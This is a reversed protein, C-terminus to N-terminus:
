HCFVYGIIRLQSLGVLNAAQTSRLAAFTTDFPAAGAVLRLWGAGKSVREVEGKSLSLVFKASSLISVVSNCMIPLIIKRLGTRELHKALGKATTQPSNGDEQFSSKFGSQRIIPREGEFCSGPLHLMKNVAVYLPNDVKNSWIKWFKIAWDPLLM